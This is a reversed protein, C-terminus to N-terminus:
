LTDLFDKGAVGTPSALRYFPEMLRANTYV